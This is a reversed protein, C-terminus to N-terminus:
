CPSSKLGNMKKVKVYDGEVRALREIEDLVEVASFDSCDDKFLYRLPGSSM